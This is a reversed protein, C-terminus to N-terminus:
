YSEKVLNKNSKSYNEFQNNSLSLNGPPFIYVFGKYSKVKPPLKEEWCSLKKLLDNVFFIKVWDIDEKRKWVRLKRNIMISLM